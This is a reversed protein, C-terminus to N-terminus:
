LTPLQKGAGPRVSQGARIRRATVRDKAAETHLLPFPRHFKADFERARQDTLEARREYSLALTARKEDEDLSGALLYALAFEPKGRTAFHRAREDPDHGEALAARVLEHFVPKALFGYRAAFTSVNESQESMSELVKRPMYVQRSQNAADYCLRLCLM